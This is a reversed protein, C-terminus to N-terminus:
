IKISLLYKDLRIFQRRFNYNNLVVHIWLERNLWNKKDHFYIFHRSRDFNPGRIVILDSILNVTQKGGVLHRHDADVAISGSGNNGIIIGSGGDLIKLDRTDADGLGVDIGDGVVLHISANGECKTIIGDLHNIIEM